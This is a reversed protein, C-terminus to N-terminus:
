AGAVGALAEPAVGVPTALVPVDCALAELAALGFGERESTVLVADATPRGFDIDVASVGMDSLARLDAAVDADSGSFMRREGDSAKAPM